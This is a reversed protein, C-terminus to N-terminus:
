VPKRLAAIQASLLTLRSQLEEISPKASPPPQQPPEAFRVGDFRWGVTVNPLGSIDVWLLTPHFLKVPNVSATLLEAVRGDQIRAFTKM